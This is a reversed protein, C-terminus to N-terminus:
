PKMTQSLVTTKGATLTVTTEVDEYRPEVLKIKHEGPSLGYKRGVRFNAAPGVYKGDVFVGARGPDVKTKLYASGSSQGFLFGHAALTGFLLVPLKKTM